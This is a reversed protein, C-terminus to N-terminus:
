EDKQFGVPKSPKPVVQMSWPRTIIQALVADTPPAIVAYHVIVQDPTEELRTVRISYGATPKEGAMLVVVAQTAFDVAPPTKEGELNQWYKEFADPSEVLEQSETASPGQNGTWTQVASFAKIPATNMENDASVASPAEPAPAAKRLALKARPAAARTVPAEQEAKGATGAVSSRPENVSLDKEEEPAKASGTSPGEAMSFAQPARATVSAKKEKPATEDVKAVEAAYQPEPATKSSVATSTGASKNTQVQVLVERNEPTKLEDHGKVKPNFKYTQRWDPNQNLFVFTLAAAAALGWSPLLWSSHKKIPSTTRGEVRAMIREHLDAPMKPEPM